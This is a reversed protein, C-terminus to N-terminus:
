CDASMADKLGAGRITPISAKIIARAVKAIMRRKKELYVDLAPIQHSSQSANAANGKERVTDIQRKTHVNHCKVNINKDVSFGECRSPMSKSAM